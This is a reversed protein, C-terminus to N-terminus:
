HLNDPIKDKSLENLGDLVYTYNLVTDLNSLRLTGTQATVNATILKIDGITTPDYSADQADLGFSHTVGSSNARYFM